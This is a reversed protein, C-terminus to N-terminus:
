LIIKHSDVVSLAKLPRGKFEISSDSLSSLYWEILKEKDDLLEIIQKEYGGSIAKKLILNSMRDIMRSTDNDSYEMSKSKLYIISYGNLEDSTSYKFMDSLSITDEQTAPLNTKESHNNKPSIKINDAIDLWGMFEETILKLEQRLAANEQNFGKKRNEAITSSIWVMRMYKVETQLAIGKAFEFGTAFHCCLSCKNELGIPCNLSTCLGYNFIKWETPSSLINTNKAKETDIRESFYLGYKNLESKNIVKIDQLHSLIRKHADKSNNIFHKLGQEKIQEVTKEQDLEVYINLLSNIGEHGTLKQVLKIPFGMKIYRTAGTKRLSHIDYNIKINRKIYLDDVADLAERNKFFSKDRNGMYALTQNQNNNKNLEIQAACLVRKWYTMHATAKVPTTENRSIFLPIFDIHQTNTEDNYKYLRPNPFYEEHWKLYLSFIDFEKEWLNPIIFKTKRNKNKDTNVYFAKNRGNADKIIFREKDLNRIQSGRLPLLLQLYIMLPLAPYVDFKWWSIDARGKFWYVPSKPPNVVLIDFIIDFEEDPLVKRSPNIDDRLGKPLTVRPFVTGKGVAHIFEYVTNLSSSKTGSSLTTDKEIFEQYTGANDPYDFIQVLFHNTYKFDDRGELYSLFKKLYSLKEKITEKVVKDIKEKKRLYRVIDKSIKTFEVQNKKSQYVFEFVSKKEEDRIDKRYQFVTRIKPNYFSVFKRFLVTTKIIRDHDAVHANKLASHIEEMDDETIDRTNYISTILYIELAMRPVFNNNKTNYDFMDIIINKQFFRPLDKAESIQSIYEKTKINWLLVGKDKLWYLFLRIFSTFRLMSAERVQSCVTTEKLIGFMWEFSNIEYFNQQFKKIINRNRQQNLYETNDYFYFLFEKQLNEIKDKYDKLILTKNSKNIRPLESVYELDITEKQALSLCTSWKNNKSNYKELREKLLEDKQVIYYSIKMDTYKKSIYDSLSKSTVRLHKEELHKIAEEMAKLRDTKLSM